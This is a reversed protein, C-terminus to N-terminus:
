VILFFNTVNFSHNWGAGLVGVPTSPSYAISFDFPVGPVPRNFVTKQWTFAGSLPVVANKGGNIQSDFLSQEGKQNTEEFLIQGSGAKSGDTGAPKNPAANMYLAAPNTSYGLKYYGVLNEFASQDAEFLRSRIMADTLASQYVTVEQVEGYLHHANAWGGISVGDTSRSDGVTISANTVAQGDM